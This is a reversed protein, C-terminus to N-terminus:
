RKGLQDLIEIIVVVNSTISYEYKYAKQIYNNRLYNLTLQM